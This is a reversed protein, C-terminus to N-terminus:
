ADDGGGMCDLSYVLARYYSRAAPRSGCELHLDILEQLADQLTLRRLKAFELLEKRCGGSLSIFVAEDATNWCHATRKPAREVLAHRAAM